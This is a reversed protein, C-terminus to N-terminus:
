YSVLGILRVVMHDAGEALYALDGPTVRLTPLVQESSKVRLAALTLDRGKEATAPAAPLDLPPLTFIERSRAFTPGCPCPQPLGRPVPTPAVCPAAM